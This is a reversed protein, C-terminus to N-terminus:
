TESLLGYILSYTFLNQSFHETTAGGIAWLVATKQQQLMDSVLMSIVGGSHPTDSHSRSAEVILFGQCVLPQGAM